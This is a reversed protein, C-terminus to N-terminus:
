SHRVSKIKRIKKLQKQIFSHYTDTNLISSDKAAMYTLICGIILLLATSLWVAQLPPLIGERALNIGFTDIMYYAIFFFVSIVVPLGLGGKRIIAGLPAGIFFFLLCAFSLTLKRHYEIKHSIIEAKNKNYKRLEMNIQGLAEQLSRKAKNLAITPNTNELSQLSKDSKHANNNNIIETPLQSKISKSISASISAKTKHLSDIDSNLQSINKMKNHNAFSSENVASLKLNDLKFLATQKKFYDKRFYQAEKSKQKGKKNTAKENYNIGNFLTMKMFQKDNTIQLKGYDSVTVKSNPYSANRNDYIMVGELMDDSKSNVRITFADMENYFINEKIDIDPKKMRVTHFLSHFKLNAWPLVNNSFLFAFISLTASIIILPKMIKYLSIGSAKIAVLEYNEGMNGFCMLSALLIALPLAMPITQICAYYLIKSITISDLGKGVIVDAYRWIFQMLLVFVSIFFTALLPSLYSKLILIHLKKM